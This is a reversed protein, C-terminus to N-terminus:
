EEFDDSGAFEIDDKVQEIASKIDSFSYGKLIFHRVTKDINKREFNGGLKKEVLPVLLEGEDFEFEYMADEITNADIGKYILAQKIRRAGYKKSNICENIYVRAYELDNIFGYEEAWLAVEHAIDRETGYRVLKDVLEKKTHMRRALCGLAKNKAKDFSINEEGM